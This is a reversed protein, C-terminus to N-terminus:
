QLGPSEAQGCQLGEGRRVSHESARLATLFHGPFEFTHAKLPIQQPVSRPLPQPQTWSGGAQLSQRGGRQMGRRM